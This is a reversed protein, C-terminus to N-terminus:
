ASPLRFPGTQGLIHAAGFPTGAALGGRAWDMPTVLHITEIGDAFGPYGRAAVTALM